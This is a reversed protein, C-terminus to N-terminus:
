SVTNMISFLMNKGRLALAALISKQTRLARVLFSERTNSLLVAKVSDYCRRRASLRKANLLVRPSSANLFFDASLRLFVRFPANKLGDDM